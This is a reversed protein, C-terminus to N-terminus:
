LETINLNRAYQEQLRNILKEITQCGGGAMIRVGECRDCIYHDCGPCYGRPRTRQPDKIIEVQCHRCVVIAMEVIVGKPARVSQLGPIPPLDDPLGPSNRHDILMYGEHMKKTKM